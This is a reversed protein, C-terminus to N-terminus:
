RGTSSRRAASARRGCGSGAAPVPDVEDDLVDCGLDLPQADAPSVNRLSMTLPGPPWCIRSSSGAPFGISSNWGAARSETTREMAESLAERGAVDLKRYASTLHMEVTRRALFLAEAIERNGLGDAAMAAIRREQPSLADVDRRTPRRPRAGAARLEDMARDTELSSGCRNALELGERLPERADRRNGARRLAAGLDILARAHALRLESGALVDVAERSREVMEVRPALMARVRLAEGIPEPAGFRCAIELEEDILEGARDHLGVRAAALAAYSRWMLAMPNVYFIALARRGAEELDALAAAPDGM